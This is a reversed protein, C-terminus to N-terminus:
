QCSKLDIPLPNAAVVGLDLGVIEALTVGGGVITAGVVGNIVREAGEVLVGDLPGGAIDVPEDIVVDNSGELGGIGLTALGEGLGGHLDLETSPDSTALISGLASDLPSTTIGVEILSGEAGVVLADGDDVISAIIAGTVVRVDLFVNVTVLGAAPLGDDHLLLVARLVVVFLGGGRGDLGLGLFGGLGLSGGRRSGGGGGGLGLSLLLLGLGLGGLGSEGSSSGGGSGGLLGSSPGRGVAISRSLGSGSSRIPWGGDRLAGGSAKTAISQEASCTKEEGLEEDLSESRSTRYTIQKQTMFCTSHVCSHASLLDDLEYWLKPASEQAFM